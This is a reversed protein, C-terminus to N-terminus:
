RTGIVRDLEASDTLFQKVLDGEALGENSLELDRRIARFVDDMYLLNRLGADIDSSGAQSQSYTRFALWAGMVEPSGWLLLKKSFSMYKDQLHSQMQEMTSKKEAESLAPKSPIKIMMFIDFVLDSFESYVGTKQLRHSERIERTKTNYQTIVVVTVAALITASGAIIPAVVDKKPWGFYLGAGILAAVVLALAALGIIQSRSM